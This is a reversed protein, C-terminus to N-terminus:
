LYRGQEKVKNRITNRKVKGELDLELVKLWQDSLRRPERWCPVMMGSCHHRCNSSHDMRDGSRLDGSIAWSGKPRQPQRSISLKKPLIKLCLERFFCGIKPRPNNFVHLIMCQLHGAIIWQITIDRMLVRRHNRDCAISPTPLHLRATLGDEGKSRAGLSGLGLRGAPWTCIIPSQCAASEASGTESTKLKERPEPALPDALPFRLSLTSGFPKVVLPLLARQRIQGGM